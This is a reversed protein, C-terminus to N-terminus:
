KIPEADASDDTPDSTQSGDDKGDSGASDDTPEEAPVEDVPEEDVPEKTPEPTPKPTPTGSVKVIEEYNKSDVDAVDDSDVAVAYDVETYDSAEKKESLDSPIEVWEVVETIPINSPEVAKPTEKVPPTSCNVNNFVALIIPNQQDAASLGCAWASAPAVGLCLVFTFKLVNSCPM